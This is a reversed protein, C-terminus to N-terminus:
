NCAKVNIRCLILKSADYIHQFTKILELMQKRKLFAILMVYMVNTYAAIQFVTKVSGELDISIFKVVFAISTLLGLVECLPVIIGFIPILMKKWLATDHAIPFIYLLKFLRQHTSFAEM